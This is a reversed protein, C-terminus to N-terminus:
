ACVLHSAQASKSLFVDVIREAARGDWKEPIVGPRTHGGLIVNAEHLIRQPDTGVLVNTGIECTIPRETNPRMTLCPIGLVTTEEQIGGSDTLVMRSHAVLGLFPLYSMPQVIRIQPHLEVEKLRPSTRPHAPFVIPIREAITNIAGLILALHGPSDVNAPRHLTLVAYQGLELGDPLPLQRARDIQQCLTDIMTNGVFHIKEAAIGEMQLNEGALADTTFLLDSIADTCLRNIEEPMSMDRSRLGAEVHAVRIGLKKATLACALTSNVDGVVIAWDPRHELCVSEFAMMIRATQEAHSGSGVELNVDPEPLGLDRFFDDSMNRSYHQGTHVLLLDAPSHGNRSSSFARHIPAIKMFNPRAGAVLLYKLHSPRAGVAASHRDRGNPQPQTVPVATSHGTGNPCLNKHLAEAFPVLVTPVQSEGFCRKLRLHDGDALTIELNWVPNGNTDVLAKEFLRGNLQLEVHTFGFRRCSECIARWREETTASVALAEEFAQLALQNNLHRRFAGAAFMRGAVGFEVYGLHQVGIWAAACFVLIILGKYQDQAISSLLSLGAALGCAGYLLLAVRRPTLGRALLRHHIHGADASMIPQRRLFRRAIAVGTDILPVALAMLPATMGLMATSKQGWLVGFCGLLFGITLSGSDGLFISAPNFNFRLFGLLAGALPVTAIALPVNGHLLAGVLITVTAFLGAGAALGDIGDILNFANSCGVLWLVTLPLSLWSPVAIGGLNTVAVGAWFAACAALAQAAFKQWPKLEILDDILGVAFVLTAAPFVRLTLPLGERVFGGALFPTVLLLVFAGLYAAMIPIGGVRPIPIAHSHRGGDPHDVLNWRRFLNRCLPTLLLALLFSSCALLGLSYM